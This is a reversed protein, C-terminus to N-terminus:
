GIIGGFQAVKIIQASCYCIKFTTSLLSLEKLDETEISYFKLFMDKYLPFLYEPFGIKKIKDILLECSTVVHIDMPMKAPMLGMGSTSLFSATVVTNPTLKIIHSFDECQLPMNYSMICSGISAEQLKILTLNM